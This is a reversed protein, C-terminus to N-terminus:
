GLILLMKLVLTSIWAIGCLRGLRDIWSPLPRCRRGVAMALWAGTVACGSMAGCVYGFVGIASQQSLFFFLPCVSILIFVSMLSSVVCAVYGPQRAIRILTERPKRLRMALVNVTVTFLFPLSENAALEFGNFVKQLLSMGPMFYPSRDDLGLFRRLALGEGIAAILLMGDILNFRRESRV